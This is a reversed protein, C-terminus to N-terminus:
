SIWDALDAAERLYAAKERYARELHDRVFANAPDVELASRSEEIAREIVGLSKELIRVTNPELRDRVGELARELRELEVALEPSPAAVDSAMSLPGTPDPAPAEVVADAGGDPRAAWALATSAAVLVISAAALQPISLFLGRRGPESRRATPLAIVDGRGRLAEAELPASIAAAIGPWLDREPAIEGLTRAGAVVARLGELVERCAGCGALHEEIERHAAAELSGELYESLRDVVNTHMGSMM